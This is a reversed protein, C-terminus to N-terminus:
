RMMHKCTKDTYKMRNVYWIDFLLVVRDEQTNNWVVRLLINIYSNFYFFIFSSYTITEFFM